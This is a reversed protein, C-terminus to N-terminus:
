KNKELIQSAFSMEIKQYDPIPTNDGAIIAKREDSTLLSSWENFAAEYANININEALQKVEATRYELSLKLPIKKSEKMLVKKIDYVFSEIIKLKEIISIVETPVM